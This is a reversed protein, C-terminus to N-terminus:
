PKWERPRPTRIYVPAASAIDLIDGKSIKEKGLLAIAGGIGDRNYSDDLDFKGPYYKGLENVGPGVATYGRSVLTFLGDPPGVSDPVVQILMGNAREFAAYYFESRKADKVVLIRDLDMRTSHAIALLSSIGALPLKLSWCIGKAVALGVRLGTFSGPGIAIGVAAIEGMNVNAEDM